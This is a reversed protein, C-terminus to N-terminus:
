NESNSSQLKTRATGQWTAVYTARMTSGPQRHLQQAGVEVASDYAGNEVLISASSNL